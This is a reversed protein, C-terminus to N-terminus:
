APTLVHATAADVRGDLLDLYARQLADHGEGAVVELWGEAWTAYPRWAAAILPAAGVPWPKGIGVSIPSAGIFRTIAPPSLLTASITADVSRPMRTVLSQYM